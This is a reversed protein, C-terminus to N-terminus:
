NWSNNPCPTITSGVYSKPQGQARGRSNLRHDPIIVADQGAHMSLLKMGQRLLLMFGLSPSLPAQSGKILCPVFTKTAAVMLPLPAMGGRAPFGPSDIAVDLRCDFVDFALCLLAARAAPYRCWKKSQGYMSYCCHQRAKM